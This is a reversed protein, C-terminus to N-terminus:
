KIKSLFQAYQRYYKGLGRSSLSHDIKAQTLIWQAYTNSNPGPYYRYCYNYPYNVPSERIILALKKAEVGLWQKELWSAGNGVGQDWKMLNFHLHGWSKSCVNQSQWIEWRERNEGDTIVFWYHVAILGIWPIKAVRLDVKITM